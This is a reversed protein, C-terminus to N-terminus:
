PRHAIGASREAAGDDISLVAMRGLAGTSGWTRPLAEAM